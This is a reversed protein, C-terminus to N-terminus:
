CIRSISRFVLFKHSSRNMSWSDSQRASTLERDQRGARAILIFSRLKLIIIDPVLLYSFVNPTAKLFMHAGQLLKFSYCFAFVIFILMGKFDLIAKVKNDIAM